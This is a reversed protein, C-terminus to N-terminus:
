QFSLSSETRFTYLSLGEFWRAYVEYIYDNGDDVIHIVYGDVEIIEYRDFPKDEHSKEAYVAYWRRVSISHPPTSFQLEIENSGNELFLTVRDLDAQSLQLSHPSDSLFGGCFNGDEDHVYWNTVGQITRVSQIPASESLLSVYLWPAVIEPCGQEEIQCTCGSLGILTLAIYM